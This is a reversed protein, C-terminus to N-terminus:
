SPVGDVVSVRGAPAVVRQRVVRGLVISTGATARLVRDARGSNVAVTIARFADECVVTRGAQVDGYVLTFPVEMVKGGCRLEIMDGIAIGAAELDSRRVNLALNGFHDVMRVCGHVHDGHVSPVTEGIADLGAPDIEDGLAAFPLGNALHGAVPAFIDRGRFSPSPNPDWLDANTLERAESVGGVVPWALSSIGNDPCVFVSGDGCRLAVPRASTARAPDVLALHISHQPLYPMAEAFMAAGIRVDQATVEHCVDIIRVQPAIRAIVGKCVGVLHDSLGYDSLFTVWGSASTDV